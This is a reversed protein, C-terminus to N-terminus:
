YWFLGFRYWCRYVAVRLPMHVHGQRAHGRQGQAEDGASGGEARSVAGLLETNPRCVAASFNLAVRILLPSFNLAM